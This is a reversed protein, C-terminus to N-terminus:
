EYAVFDVSNCQMHLWGNRQKQLLSIVGEKVGVMVVSLPSVQATTGDKSTEGIDTVNDTTGLVESYLVNYWIASLITVM